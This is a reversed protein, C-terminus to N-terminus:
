SVRGDLRALAERAFESLEPDADGALRALTPRAAGDRLQGLAWAAAIRVAHSRDELAERLAPAASPLPAAGAIWASVERALPAPEELGRALCAGVQEPHERAAELLFSPVVDQVEHRQMGLAGILDCLHEPQGLRALAEAAAVRLYVRREDRLVTELVPVAAPDGRAALAQAAFLGVKTRLKQDGMWEYLREVPLEGATREPVVGLRAEDRALLYRDATARIALLTLAGAAETRLRRGSAEFVDMLYAVVREDASEGLNRVLLLTRTEDPAVEAAYAAMGGRRAAEAMFARVAARRVERDADALDALLAAADGVPAVPEPVVASAVGGDADRRRFVEYRGFVAARVYHARLHARLIFYYAPANVFFGLRRNMTLLYRPPQAELRRVVEAEARHDPRGPFFYDHPTPTPHELAFPVLALAPFGFIEEGPRLRPALYRLMGDFARLDTSRETEVHVPTPAATLASQPRRVISGDPGRMFLGGYNPLAAVAALVGALGALIPVLRGEGLRLTREWAGALRAAAVAGLVLASPLALILHMSDVRPYLQVYMCLAFVLAVLLQQGRVDLAPRGPRLRRLLVTVVAVALAPVLFFGVQQVQWLVSRRLGEPMRALLGLLLALGSGIMVISAVARSVRVRGREAALGFAGLAIIAMAALPAWSAPFGVPLPYPTAYIREAGSGFLLVEVLFRSPGLRGLFYVIWPLTPLAAGAALLGIAPWLRIPRLERRKAWFLRGGILALPAGAIMPFEVPVGELTMLVSLSEALLVFLALGGLALLVRAPRRDPDGDGAAFLAVCLGCALVAIVGSNPKFTFALGCALGAVFLAGRGGRVVHRDMALQAALWALAAYWAPYPINFSAFEGIFFPLFAAYGLAAATALWAGALTRTLVFILAVGAANVAALVIRVPVVSEGFWRFLAANLYFVGPTYGTHFDIYPLDGRLTRAIGFLVSGEDELNIGYTLFSAFYAGAIVAIALPALRRM